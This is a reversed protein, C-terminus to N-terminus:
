QNKTDTYTDGDQGIFGDWLIKNRLYKLPLIHYLEMRLEGRQGNM